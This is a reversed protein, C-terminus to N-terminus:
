NNTVNLGEFSNLVETCASFQESKVFIYDTNYTSIAFVSIGADKLPTTIRNLIGTLSFDLIGKVMLGKWNRVSKFSEFDTTCNTVISLEDKTKTVSYFDSNFIEDPIKQNPECQYITFISKLPILTIMLNKTTNLEPM